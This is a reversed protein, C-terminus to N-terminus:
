FKEVERIAEEQSGNTETVAYRKAEEVRIAYLDEHSVPLLAAVNNNRMPAMLGVISLSRFLKKERPDVRFRGGLSLALNLEIERTDCALANAVKCAYMLLPFKWPIIQRQLSLVLQVRSSNHGAGFGGPEMMSPNHLTKRTATTEQVTLTMLCEVIGLEEPSGALYLCPDLTQCGKALPAVCNM